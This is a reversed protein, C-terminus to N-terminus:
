HRKINFISVFIQFQEDPLRPLSGLEILVQMTQKHNAMLKGLPKKGFIPRLHEVINNELRKYARGVM